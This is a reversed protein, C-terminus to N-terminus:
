DLDDIDHDLHVLDERLAELAVMLEAEQELRHEYHDQDWIVNWENFEDVQHWFDGTPVDGHHYDAEADEYHYEEHHDDHHVVHHDDHEEYHGDYHHDDYHHDDYHGDYHADYYYDEHHEADNHYDHPEHHDYVPASTGSTNSGSYTPGFNSMYSSYDFAGDASMYNSYDERTKVASSVAALIAAQFARM